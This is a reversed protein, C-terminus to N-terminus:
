SYKNGETKKVVDGGAYVEVEVTVKEEVMIQQHSDQPIEKIVGVATELIVFGTAVEAEREVEVEIGTGQVWIQTVTM